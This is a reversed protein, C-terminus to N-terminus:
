LCIQPFGRVILTILQSPPPHEPAQFLTCCGTQLLHLLTLGVCIIWAVTMCAGAQSPHGSIQVPAPHQFTPYPSCVWLPSQQQSHPSLMLPCSHPGRCHSIRMSSVSIMLFCLAMTAQRREECLLGQKWLVLSSEWKSCAQMDKCDGGRGAAEWRPSKIEKIEAETGEQRVPLSMRIM